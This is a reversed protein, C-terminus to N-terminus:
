CREIHKQQKAAKAELRDELAPKKPPVVGSQGERGAQEGADKGRGKDGGSADSGGDGSRSRPRADTGQWDPFAEAQEITRPSQGREVHNDYEAYTDALGKVASYTARPKSGVAKIYWPDVFGQKGAQYREWTRRVSESEPVGVHAVHVTYGAAKMKELLGRISPEHSGVRPIVANDGATLAKDILADFIGASEEHVAGAATKDEIFEPLHQKADDPDLIIAGLREVMPRAISSKGAGPPGLLIVAQREKRKAGKGYIVRAIKARLARREPTDIDSTREHQLSQIRALVIAPTDHETARSEALRVIGVARLLDGRGLTDLGDIAVPGGRLEGRLAALTMKRPDPRERETAAGLGGEAAPKNVQERIRRREEPSMKHDPETYVRWDGADTQAYRIDEKGERRVIAIGADRQTVV